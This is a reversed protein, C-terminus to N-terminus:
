SWLKLSKIELVAEQLINTILSGSWAHHPLPQDGKRDELTVRIHVCYHMWNDPTTSWAQQHELLPSHASPSRSSLTFRFLMKPSPGIQSTVEEMLDQAIDCLESGHSSPPPLM